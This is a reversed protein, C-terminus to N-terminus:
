FYINKSVLIIFNGEILELRLYYWCRFDFVFWLLVSMVLGIWVVRMMLKVVNIMLNFSFRKMKLLRRVFFMGGVWIDSNNVKIIEGNSVVIKKLSEVMKFLLLCGWFSFCDFSILVSIKLCMVNENWIRMMGSVMLSIWFVCM